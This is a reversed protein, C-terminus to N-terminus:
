RQERARTSENTEALMAHIKLLRQTWAGKEPGLWAVPDNHLIESLFRKLRKVPQKMSSAVELDTSQKASSRVAKNFRQLEFPRDLHERMEGVDRFLDDQFAASAYDVVLPVSQRGRFRCM